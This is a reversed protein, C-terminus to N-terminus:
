QTVRMVTRRHITTSPLTAYLGLRAFNFVPIPPVYTYTIDVSTSLYSAAEPDALANGAGLSCTSTGNKNTCVKVAISARNLLSSVENTVMATIQAGTPESPSSVYAGNMISYQAAARTANAVTIWAFLYAGFNVANIILLFLLPLVLAFEVLSQGRQAIKRRERPSIGATLGADVLFKKMRERESRKLFVFEVGVGDQALRVVKSRVSVAKEETSRDRVNGDKEKVQLTIKVITGYYWSDETCIYAGKGCIDRVDRPRPEAGDWYYAALCPSTERACARRENLRGTWKRFWDPFQM